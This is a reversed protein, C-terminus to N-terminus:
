RHGHLSDRSVLRGLRQSGQRGGCLEGARQRQRGDGDSRGLDRASAANRLKSEYQDRVRSENGTADCLNAAVLMAGVFGTAAALLLFFTAGFAAVM